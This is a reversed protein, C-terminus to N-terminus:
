RPPPPPPPVSASAAPQAFGAVQNGHAFMCQAYANDFLQQATLTGRQAQSSGVMTGGLAGSAAGIGAGRGGGIAAGLGAGLVTGLVASGIQQNNSAGAVGASQQQAFQRCFADDRQFVAFPKNPGPMVTTRPGMPESACGSLLALAAVAGLTTRSQKM